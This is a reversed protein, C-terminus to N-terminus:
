PRPGRLSSPKPQLGDSFSGDADDDLSRLARMVESDSAIQVSWGELEDLVDSMSTHEINTRDVAGNKPRCAALDHM